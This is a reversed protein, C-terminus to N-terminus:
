WLDWWRSAICRRPRRPTGWRVSGVCAFGPLRLTACGADVDGADIAGADTVTTTVDRPATETIAADRVDTATVDIAADLAPGKTEDETCGAACLALAIFMGRRADIM